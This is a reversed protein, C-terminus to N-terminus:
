YSSISYSSGNRTLDAINSPAAQGMYTFNENSDFAYFVQTAEGSDSDVIRFVVATENSSIVKTFDIGRCGIHRYSGNRFYQQAQPDNTGIANNQKAYHILAKRYKGMNIAERVTRNSFLSNLRFYDEPIVTFTSAVYGTEGTDAVRVNSWEGERQLIVLRTGYDLLGLKNYEVTKDKSSRLWTKDAYTYAFDDEQVRTVEINNEAASESYNETRNEAYDAGNDKKGSFIAIAVGAIIVVAAIGAIIFIKTKDDGDRGIPLPTPTVRPAAQPQYTQYQQEPAAAPQAHHPVPPVSPAAPAAVQPHHPVPPVPPSPPTPPVPAAGYPNNQVPTGQQWGQAPAAPAPQGPINYKNLQAQKRAEELKDAVIKPVCIKNIPNFLTGLSKIWVLGCPIGIITIFECAAFVAMGVVMFCGPIFYLVRNVICWVKWWTQQERENLRGLEAKSVMAYGNPWLLFKAFQFYGLGQPILIITVCCVIGNVLYILSWLFGLFPFHWLVNLVQKM